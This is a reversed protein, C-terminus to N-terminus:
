DRPRHGVVLASASAPAVGARAARQRQLPRPLLRAHSEVVGLDHRGVLQLRNVIRRQRDELADAHVDPVALRAAHQSGGAGLDVLGPLVNAEGLLHDDLPDGGGRGLERQVTPVRLLVQVDAAVPHGVAGHGARRVEDPEVANAAGAVVDAEVVQQLEALHEVRDVEDGAIRDLRDVDVGRNAVDVGREVHQRQGVLVDM